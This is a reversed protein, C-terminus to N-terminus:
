ESTFRSLEVPLPVGPDDAGPWGLAGQRIEGDIDTTVSIPCPSLDTTPLPFGQGSGISGGVFHLNTASAWAGPTTLMPDISRSNMDAGTALATTWAAITAYNTTNLRAINASKAYWDNCDIAPSSSSTTSAAATGLNVALGGNHGVRVVNNKITYLNTTSVSTRLLGIGYCNPVTLAANINTQTDLSISNYMINYRAAALAAATARIGIMSPTTVGTTAYQFGSLMNNYVRFDGVGATFAGGANATLDIMAGGAAGTNSWLVFQDIVNNSITMVAPAGSVTTAVDYVMIAYPNAAPLYTQHIRITNNSITCNDQYVTQIGRARADILCNKITANTPPTIFAEASGPAHLNSGNDIGLIVDYGANSLAGFPTGTSLCYCNDLVFGNSALCANGTPYYKLPMTAQRSQVVVCAYPINVPISTVASFINCNKIQVNTCAGYVNLVVPQTGNGGPGTNTITTSNVLTLSRDSGGATTSGDIFFNNTAIATSDRAGFLTTEQTQSGIIWAGPIGSACSPGSTTTFSITLPVAPKFTVTSGSLVWNGFAVNNPETLDNLISVNWNGTNATTNFDLSCELLSVYDGGTGITSTGQGSPADSYKKAFCFSVCVIVLTIVLFYKLYKM